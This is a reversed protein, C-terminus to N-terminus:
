VLIEGGQRLTVEGDLSVGRLQLLSGVGKAVDAVGDQITLQHEVQQVADVRAEGVGGADDCRGVNVSATFMTRKFSSRRALTLLNAELVARVAEVFAAQM